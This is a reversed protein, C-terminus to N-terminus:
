PGLYKPKVSASLKKFTSKVFILKILRPTDIRTGLTLKKIECLIFM